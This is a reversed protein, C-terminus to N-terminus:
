LTPVGRPEDPFDQRRAVLAEGAERLDAFSSDKEAANFSRYSRKDIGRRGQNDIARPRGRVLSLGGKRYDTDASWRPLWPADWRKLPRPLDPLLRAVIPLIDAELDCGQDRILAVIPELDADREFFGGAVLDLRERLHSVDMHNADPEPQSVEPHNAAADPEPQSVEPHNAADHSIPKAAKRRARSAHAREAATAPRDAFHGRPRGASRKPVDEFLARTGGAKMLAAIIEETSGGNRLVDDLMQRVEAVTM